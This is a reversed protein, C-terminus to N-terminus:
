VGLDVDEIFSSLQFNFDLMLVFMIFSLDGLYLQRQGILSSFDDFLNIQCDVVKINEAELHALEFEGDSWSLGLHLTQLDFDWQQARLELGIEPFADVFRNEEVFRPRGESHGSSDGDEVDVSDGLDIVNDAFPKGLVEMKQTEGDLILVLFLLIEFDELRQDDVASQFYLLDLGVRKPQGDNLIEEKQPPVRLQIKFLVLKSKM